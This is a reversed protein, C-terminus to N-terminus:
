ASTLSPVPSLVPRAAGVRSGQHRSECSTEGSLSISSPRVEEPFWVGPQTGGELMHQAFAATALGVCVSLKNHVYLGTPNSGDSMELSVKMACKEGVVLDALKVFPTSLAM